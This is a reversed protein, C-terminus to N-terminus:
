NANAIDSVLVNFNTISPRIYVGFNVNLTGAPPCADNIAKTLAGPLGADTVCEALAAWTRPVASDNPDDDNRSLWDNLVERVFEDKEKYDKKYKSVLVDDNLLMHAFDTCQWQELSTIWQIVKLKSGDVSANKLCLLQNYTPRDATHFLIM